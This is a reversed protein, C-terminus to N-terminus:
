IHILSLYYFVLGGVVGLTVLVALAGALWRWPGQLEGPETPISDRENM